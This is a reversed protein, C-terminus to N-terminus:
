LELFDKFFGMHEQARARHEQNEGDMYFGMAIVYNALPIMWKRDIDLTQDLDTVEEFDVREGTTPSYASHPKKEYLVILADSLWEKVPASKATLSTTLAGGWASPARVSIIDSAKM